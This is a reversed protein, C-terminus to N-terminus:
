KIFKLLIFIYFYHNTIVYYVINCHKTKQFLFYIKINPNFKTDTHNRKWDVCESHSYVINMKIYQNTKPRWGQEWIYKPVRCWEEFLQPDPRLDVEWFRFIQLMQFAPDLYESPDPAFRLSKKYGAKNPDAACTPLSAPDPDRVRPNAPTPPDPDRVRIITLSYGAPYCQHPCPFRSLCSQTPCPPIRIWPESPALPPPIERISSPAKRPNPIVDLSIWWCLMQQRKWLSYRGGGRGVM